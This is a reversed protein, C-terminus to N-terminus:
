ILSQKEWSKLHMLIQQKINSKHDNLTVKISQQCEIFENIEGFDSLDRNEYILNDRM